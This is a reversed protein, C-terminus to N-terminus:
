VLKEQLVQLFSCYVEQLSVFPLLIFIDTFRALETQETVQLFLVEEVCATFRLYKYLELRILEVSLVQAAVGKGKMRSFLLFASQM